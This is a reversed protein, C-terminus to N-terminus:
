LSHYARPLFLAELALGLGHWRLQRGGPAASQVWCCGCWPRGGAGASLFKVFGGPSVFGPCDPLSSM